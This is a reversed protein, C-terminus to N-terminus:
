QELMQRIQSIDQETQSDGNFLAKEVKEFGHIVTSHDRGGLEKGIDKLSVDTDARILFMAIQRPVVIHKDRQKGCLDEISVHYYSSVASLIQAPTFRRKPQESPALNMLAQRALDITLPENRLEAFAVVRNLMGELERVNSQIREALYTLVADDIVCNLAEAKTRLIAQRTELDPPQIDAILGWEFRSRLREALDIDKPPRDSCIVIQKHNSYLANFTHFFEEETSEKGAIFQIDDVLLVDVSRYKARFEETTRYRIANIIENTFTESTVYLVRYNRPTVAHALAHLLHTKGLGVGGYLFLPNYAEAPRDAVALSAAYAFDNGRGVIFTDFTYRSNLWAPAENESTAIDPHNFDAPSVTVTKTRRGNGNGNIQRLQRERRREEAPPRRKGRAPLVDALPPSQTMAPEAEETDPFLRNGQTTTAAARAVPKKEKVTFSVQVKQKGGTADSLAREIQILCHNELQEKVAPSSVQLIYKDPANTPILRSNRLWQYVGDKLEKQLRELAFSWTQKNIDIEGTDGRTIQPM